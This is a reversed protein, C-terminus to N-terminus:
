LKFGTTNWKDKKVCRPDKLSYANNISQSLHATSRLVHQNFFLLHKRATKFGSKKGFSSRVQKQTITSTGDNLEVKFIKTKILVNVKNVRERVLRLLSPLEQLFTEDTSTRNNNTETRQWPALCSALSTFYTEYRTDYTRQIYETTNTCTIPGEADSMLLLM